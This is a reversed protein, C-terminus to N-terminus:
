SRAAFKEKVIRVVELGARKQGEETSAGLHPTATVRPHDILSFDQPPEQSFVDLAAAKVQGSNLAQLLANEDVVGGRAANVIVVGKKMREFERTSLIPEPTKPVHLTIIDAQSLLEDLSVQKVALDTKIPIVDYALINMGLALARRAVELGIRGFGIIGLTKGYVETGTFLKKEWKHQKMSLNAPGHHRVAGLMLGIVHEAVSISTASPTNAVEVGKEKAAKVDITDLGIGARVILKLNQGAEIIPRTIKTASRVVVVEFDPIIKVLDAENLGTKVTVEFGPVAQLEEIAEQDLHDAILIRTTM